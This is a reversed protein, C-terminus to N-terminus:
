PPYESKLGRVARYVARGARAIARVRAASRRRMIANLDIHWRDLWYTRNKAEEVAEHAWAEVEVLEAELAQVQVRLRELEEKAEGVETTM